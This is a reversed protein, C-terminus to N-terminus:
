AAAAGATARFADAFAASNNYERFASVLGNKFTFVHAWHGAMTKGTAKVKGREVGQVIVTDGHAFFQQPTFEQVDISAGLAQFFQAVGDRGKRDGFIPVIAPGDISWTVDAALANLITAVDGRGFAAYMVQVTQLPTTTSM